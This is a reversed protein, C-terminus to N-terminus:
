GRHSEKLLAEKGSTKMLGTTKIIKRTGGSRVEHGGESDYTRGPDVRKLTPANGRGQNRYYDGRPDTKQDRTYNPDRREERQSRGHYISRSGTSPTGTQERQYKTNRADNRLDEGHHTNSAESRHEGRGRLGNQHYKERHSSRQMRKTDTPYDISEPGKRYDSLYEYGRMNEGNGRQNVTHEPTRGLQGRSERGHGISRSCLNHGTKSPGIKLSSMGSTMMLYARDDEKTSSRAASKKSSFMNYNKVPLAKRLHLALLISTSAFIYSKCIALL